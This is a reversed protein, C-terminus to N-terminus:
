QRRGARRAVEAVVEDVRVVTTVLGKRETIEVEGKALGKPGITIRLPIGLLEMDTFKFGAREDRDDLLVDVGAAELERYLREATENVAKDKVNLPVVAAHFPCLEMPWVIGKEDHHQEIVSALTRDVGIGYCGMILTQSKGEKDLFRAQMVDSYVTGLQFVHGVEIGRMLSVAKGCQPCPDGAKGQRLDVYAEPEFDRGPNTNRYHMESENAGSLANVLNKVSLDAIVRLGKLGVPGSFGVPGGTAKQIEEASAPGFGTAKAANLGKTENLEHDGRMLFAVIKDDARYLLTKVMRSAPIGLGEVLSEITSMKPTSIKELPEPGGAASAELAHCPFREINAAYGCECTAIEAEGSAAKVMFEFSVDGGITGSDAAVMTFDLGCRTFIRKYAEVMKAYSQRLGDESTDFSYADKMTFERGRMVGFRPRIEDRYKRGIQFLTIPFDRWSTLHNRVLDTFVEEHTPGLAFDRKHRDQLRFMEEGFREWRGTEQFLEAPVAISCSIEHAGAALMEERVISEVKKFMKLGLPLWLYMGSATKRILGARLMLIHSPLTAESPTEKLTPIFSQTFRM